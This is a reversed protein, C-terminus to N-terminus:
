GLLSDFFRRNREWVKQHSVHDKLWDAIVPYQQEFDIEGRAVAVIAEALDEGSAPRVIVGSVGDVVSDVSGTASTTVVPVGSAIAELNVTPFGERLTPNCFIDLAHYFHEMELVQGLLIWHEGRLRGLTSESIPKAGDLEGVVACALKPVKERAKEVAQILYEIGKDPTLRGAFGVITHNEPLGYRQRAKIKGSQTTPRFRKLDIGNSHLGSYSSLKLVAKPAVRVLERQLSPSIPRVHTAFAVTIRETLMLVFRLVGRETEFRLGWVWYVRRPVFAIRAALNGLLSAKPTAGVFVTPEVARLIRVMEVLAKIDAFLGLKRVMKVEHFQIQNRRDPKLLAKPPGETLLHVTWGNKALAILQDSLFANASLWSTTAFCITKTSM